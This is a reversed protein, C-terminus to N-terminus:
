DEEEEEEEDEERLDTLAFCSYSKFVSRPTPLKKDGDSRDRDFGEYEDQNRHRGDDDDEESVPLLPMSMAAPIMMNKSWRQIRRKKNFPHETKEIDKASTTAVAEALNTFSKSKGSFHNSLGRKVTLSDKLTALSGLSELGKMADKSSAEDEEDDSDDPVGISSSSRDSEVVDDEEEEDVEEADVYGNRRPFIMRRSLPVGTVGQGNDGSDAAERVFAQSTEASSTAGFGVLVKM